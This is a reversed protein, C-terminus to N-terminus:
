VSFFCYNKVIFCRVLSSSTFLIIDFIFRSFCIPASLNDVRGYLVDDIPNRSTNTYSNQILTNSKNLYSKYISM